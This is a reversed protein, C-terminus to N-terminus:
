QTCNQQVNGPNVFQPGNYNYTNTGVCVPSTPATGPAPLLIGYQLTNSPYNITNGSLKIPYAPPQQPFQSTSPQQSPSICFGGSYSYSYNPNTFTIINGSINGSSVNFATMQRVGSYNVTNNLIKEGTSSGAQLVFPPAFTSDLNFTNSEIDLNAKPGFLPDYQNLTDRYCSGTTQYVSGVSVIGNKFQNNTISDDTNEDINLSANNFQNNLFHMQSSGETVLIRATLFPGEAGPASFGNTVNSDFTVNTFQDYEDSANFTVDGRGFSWTSDQITVDRKFGNGFPGYNIPDPDTIGSIFLGYVMGGSLIPNYTNIQMNELTVGHPTPPM